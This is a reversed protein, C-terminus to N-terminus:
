YCEVTFKEYYGIGVGDARLSGGGGGPATVFNGTGHTRFSYHGANDYVPQYRANYDTPNPDGHYLGYGGGLVAAVCTQWSRNAGGRARIAITKLQGIRFGGHPM